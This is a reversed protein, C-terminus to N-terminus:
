AATRSAEGLEVAVSALAAAEIERFVRILLGRDQDRGVLWGAYAMEELMDDRVFALRDAPTAACVMAIGAAARGVSIPDDTGHALESELFVVHDLEALALSGDRIARDARVLWALGEEDELAAIAVAGLRLLLGPPYSGEAGGSALALLPDLRGRADLRPTSVMYASAHECALTWLEPWAEACTACSEAMRRVADFAPLVPESWAAVGRFFRVEDTPSRGSLRDALTLRERVRALTAVTEIVARVPAAHAEVRNADAGEILVAAPDLRGPFVSGFTLESREGVWQVKGALRDPRELTVIRIPGEGDHYVVADLLHRRCVAQPNGWDDLGFWEIRSGGESDRIARASAAPMFLGIRLPRTPWPMNWLHAEARDRWEALVGAEHPVLPTMAIRATAGALRTAGDIVTAHVGGSPWWGHQHGRESSSAGFPIARRGPDLALYAREALQALRARASPSAALVFLGILWIGAPLGLVSEALWAAGLLRGTAVVACATIALAWAPIPPEPVSRYTSEPSMAGIM